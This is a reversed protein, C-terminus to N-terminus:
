FCALQLSIFPSLFNHEHHPMSRKLPVRLRCCFHRRPPLYSINYVKKGKVAEM